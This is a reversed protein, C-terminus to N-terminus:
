KINKTKLIEGLKIILLEEGGGGGWKENGEGTTLGRFEVLMERADKSYGNRFIIHTFKKLVFARENVVLVMNFDEKKFHTHYEKFLRKLWFDKIERYEEKKEGSLIMDFWKKKLTLHLIEM